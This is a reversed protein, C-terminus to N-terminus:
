GFLYLGILQIVEDQTLLANFLYDGIAVIVEDRSIAGDHDDDYPLGIPLQESAENANGDSDEAVGAAIDVTVVGIANPTVDFTYVSDGDSGVFNSVDANAVTVDDADFGNVAKRFTATVQIASRLRVGATGATTTSLAPAGPSTPECFDLGIQDLDNDPDNDDFDDAVGRLGYPICGTFWLSGYQSSELPLHRQLRPPGTAWVPRQSENGRKISSAADTCLWAKPM